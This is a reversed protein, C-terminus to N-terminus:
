KFWSEAGGGDSEQSIDKEQGTPGDSKQEEELSRLTTNGHKLGARKTRFSGGRARRDTNEIKAFIRTLEPM